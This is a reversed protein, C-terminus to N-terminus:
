GVLRMTVMAIGGNGSRSRTPPTVRSYSVQEIYVEAVEGTTYDRWVVTSATAEMAKLQAYRVFSNGVTGYAAGQRDVEHDFLMVPVQILESRRPAPIARVQYGGFSPTLTTTSSRLVRIAVYLSAAPSPAAALLSGTADVQGSLIDIIPSWLSPASVDNLSAYARITGSPNSGTLVRLDRWAKSEVTGLRIRGTEMWGEDVYDSSQKYVGAGDVCIWLVGGSITVQSCSGSVGSPAVLDAASAFLLPNQNLNTSLNIRYLGPRNTRDGVEGLSGVTVYLYTGDAVADSCGDAIALTLPGVTLTGSATYTNNVTAIRTGKSTGIVMLSGMYSYLSQAIEGRPLEAVVTPVALTVTSSTATVDIKFIMSTDGSYGAAYIASPGEAIDTWTWGSAPHTYLAAPLAAPPSAPSTDSIEYLSGGVAAILRAKAWRVLTAAATTYIKAGASNPLTGKYIGDSSGVFYSSGNSTVSSATLSGGWTVAFTSGTDPVYTVTAGGAHLVGTGVGIMSQTAASSTFRVATSNLLSVQGPTWPNVGGGRAYRFRAETESVELPEASTLGSGYHWSSQSRIWYGSDLSQEGPERQNDVRERRFQGTERKLPNQDSMGFLFSQGGISCDWRMNAPTVATLATSVLPLGLGDVVDQTIDTIVPM